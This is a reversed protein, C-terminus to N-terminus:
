FWWLQLVEFIMEYLYDNVMVAWNEFWQPNEPSAFSVSMFLINRAGDQEM